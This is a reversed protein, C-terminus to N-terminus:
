KGVEFPTAEKEDKAGARIQEVRQQAGQLMASLEGYLAMGEEYASLAQELTMSGDEMGAVLAELKELGEEFTPKAKKKAPM